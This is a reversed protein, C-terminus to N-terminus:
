EVASIPAIAPPEDQRRRRQEAPIAQEMADLRRRDNNASGFLTAFADRTGTFSENKVEPNDIPGRVRTTLLEERLGEIVSTLVPIRARNGTKFRLDLNLDPWTATGVGYLGVSESSIALQEFNITTGAIYFDAFAYDLTEARPLQLNTVRVLPVLAPLSLVEGGRITFTGRGQRGVDRGTLGTLSFSGSLIGRSEDTSTEQPVQALPDLPKNRARLDALLPAFRVGSANASIEFFRPPLEGVTPLPAGVRVKGALRGGHVRASFSPILVEGDAGTSLDIRSDQMHVGAARVSSLLATMSVDSGKGDQFEYSYDLTGTADQMSVGIQASADALSVTGFTSLRQVEGSPSIQAAIPADRLELGGNVRVDLETLSNAVASPLVALFTPTLSAAQLSITADIGTPADPTQADKSWAADAALSWDRTALRLGELKGGKAGLFRVLGEVQSFTISEDGATIALSTPKVTGTVFTDAGRSTVQIDASHLGSVRKAILQDAVWGQGADRLVAHLQQSAFDVNEARVSTQGETREGTADFALESTLQATATSGVPTTLTTAGEMRVRTSQPSFTVLVSGEPSVPFLEGAYRITSQQPKTVQVTGAPAENDRWSIDATIDALGIPAHKTRIQAIQDAAGPAFVRVADEVPSTLDLRPAAITISTQGVRGEERPMDSTLTTRMRAVAAGTTEPSIDAEASVEVRERQVRVTAQANNMLLSTEGRPAPSLAGTFWARIDYNTTGKDTLHLTASAKVAGQPNLPALWERLPRKADEAGVSPLAFLLLDDTPLNNATADVDPVFEGGAKRIREFDVLAGIAIDGGRLGTYTGGSVTAVNNAQSITAGKVRMPYPLVDLLVGVDPLAINVEDFWEGTPGYERWIRVAVDLPGGLDFIPTALIRRQVEAEPSNTRGERTLTDLTRQAAAHASSTVVLGADLLRDYQERSFLQPLVDELGRAYMAAELRDDVPIQAARVNIEVKADDTPPVFSGTASITAGSPSSGTIDDFRVSQDDFMVTGRINRWQYPFKHFAATLDNLKIAGSVQLPPNSRGDKKTPDKTVAGRSITVTADVSGQPDSFDRLRRRVLGPAFKLIAPQRQIVVNNSTLTMTWAADPSPSESQFTVKYPLEELQGAIEGSVGDSALRIVGSTNRMRLREGKEEAPVPLRNGDADEDPQVDLPLNLAVNDLTLQGEWSGAFLYTLTAEPVKGELATERFLERTATPTSEPTVATLDLGQLAVSVGENWVRGRVVLAESASDDQRFSLVSADGEATQEVQGSVNIRKLVSYDGTASAHEGVEIVGQQVRLDPINFTEGLKPISTPTSTNPKSFGKALVGVNVSGDDVARSVRITPRDLVARHVWPTGTLCKGLDVDADLREVRFFEGAEGKVGPARIRVGQMTVSGGPTVRVSTASVDAHLANGIAGTVVLRTVFSDTALWYLGATAAVGALLWTLWRRKKRPTPLATPSTSGKRLGM